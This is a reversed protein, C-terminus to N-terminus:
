GPVVAVQSPGDDAQHVPRHPRLDHCEDGHRELDRQEDEVITLVGFLAYNVRSRVETPTQSIIFSDVAEVEEPLMSVLKDPQCTGFSQSQDHHLEGRLHWSGKHRRGIFAEGDWVGYTFNRGNCRYIGRVKLESLPIM